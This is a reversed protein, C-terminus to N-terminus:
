QPSETPSKQEFADCTELWIPDYDLPWNFWNNRMGHASGTLNFPPFQGGRLICAIALIRGKGELVPHKCESHPSYPLDSRFRCEYCNPKESRKSGSQNSSQSGDSETKYNEDTSPSVALSIAPSVPEDSVKQVPEQSVINECPKIVEKTMM